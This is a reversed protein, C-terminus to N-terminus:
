VGSKWLGEGLGLLYFWSFVTFTKVALVRTSFSECSLRTFFPLKAPFMWAFNHLDRKEM